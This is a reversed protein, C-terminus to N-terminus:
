RRGRIVPAATNLAADIEDAAPRQQEVPNAGAWGAAGDTLVIAKM